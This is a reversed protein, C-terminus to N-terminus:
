FTVVLAATSTGHAGSRNNWISVSTAAVPTGGEVCTITTVAGAQGTITGTNGTVSVGRMQAFLEACTPPALYRAVAIAYASQASAATAHVASDGAQPRLDFFRPASIAALIGIILLVIALEILTFGTQGRAKDM